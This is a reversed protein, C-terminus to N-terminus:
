LGRAVARASLGRRHTASLPTILVVARDAHLVDAVTVSRKRAPVRFLERRRNITTVLVEYGRAGNVARWTVRLSKPTRRLRVGRPRALRLTGPARYRAVIREMRPLGRQSVQAVIKRTGAPGAAPVFRLTGRRGRAVGIQHAVKTSREVFTVRQGPAPTVRYSL